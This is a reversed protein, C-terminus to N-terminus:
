LNEKPKQKSMGPIKDASIKRAKVEKREGKAVQNNKDDLFEPETAITQDDNQYYNIRADFSVTLAQEAVLRMNPLEITDNNETLGTVGVVNHIFNLQSRQLNTKVTGFTYKKDTTNQLTYTFRVVDGADIEGNGAVDGGPALAIAGEITVIKKENHPDFLGKIGDIVPDLFFGKATTSFM